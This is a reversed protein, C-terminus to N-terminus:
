VAKRWEAPLPVDVVGREVVAGELPGLANRAFLVTRELLLQAFAGFFAAFGLLQVTEEANAEIGYVVSQESFLGLHIAPFMLAELGVKTACLLLAVVVWRRTVPAAHRVAVILLIALTVLFPAYAAEWIVRGAQDPLDFRVEIHQGVREHLSISKDLSLFAMAVGIASWAARQPAKLYTAALGFAALAAGALVFSHFWTVANFRGDIDLSWIQERLIWRQFVDAAVLAAGGIIATLLILRDVRPLPPRTGIVAALGFRSSIGYAAM